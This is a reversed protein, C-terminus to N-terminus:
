SLQSGWSCPFNEPLQLGKEVPKQWTSGFFCVPPLAPSVLDGKMACTSISLIDCAWPGSVCPKYSPLSLLSRGGEGLQSGLVLCWVVNQRQPTYMCCASAGQAAACAQVVVSLQPYLLVVSVGSQVVLPLLKSKYFIFGTTYQLFLFWSLEVASQIQKIRVM